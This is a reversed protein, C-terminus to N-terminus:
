LGDAPGRRGSRDADYSRGAEIARHASLSGRRPRAGRAFFASAAQGAGAQHSSRKKVDKRIGFRITPDRTQSASADATTALADALTRLAKVFVNRVEISADRAVVSVGSGGAGMAVSQRAM